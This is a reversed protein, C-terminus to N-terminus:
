VTPNHGGPVLSLAGNKEDASHKVALNRFGIEVRATGSTCGICNLGGPASDFYAELWLKADSHQACLQQLPKALRLNLAEIRMCGARPVLAFHHQPKAKMQQMEVTPKSTYRLSTRNAYSSGTKRKAGQADSVPAEVSSLTGQPPVYWPLTTMELLLFADPGAWVARHWVWKTGTTQSTLGPTGATAAWHSIPDPALLSTLPLEACGLRTMFEAVSESTNHSNNGSSRMLAEIRLCPTTGLSEEPFLKPACSLVIPAASAWEVGCM